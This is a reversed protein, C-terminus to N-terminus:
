TTGSPTGGGGTGLASRVTALLRQDGIATAYREVGRLLEPSANEETLITEVIDREGQGILSHLMGLGLVTYALAASGFHGDAIAARAGDVLERWRGHPDAHAAKILAPPDLDM